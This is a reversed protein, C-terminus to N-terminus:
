YLRGYLYKKIKNIDNNSLIGGNQHKWKRANQAFTAKKRIKPDPSHKGRSICESTVKGGCYDTFSGKNEKKIHIKNGKKLCDVTNNHLLSM